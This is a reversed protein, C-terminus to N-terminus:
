RFAAVKPKRKQLTLNRSINVYVTRKSNIERSDQEARHTEIGRVRYMKGFVYMNKRNIAIYSLAPAHPKYFTGLTRRPFRAEEGYEADTRTCKYM